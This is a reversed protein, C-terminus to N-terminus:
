LNIMLLSMGLIKRYINLCDLFPNSLMAKVWEDEPVTFKRDHVIGRPPIDNKVSYEEVQKNFDALFKAFDQLAEGIQKLFEDPIASRSDRELRFAARIAESHEAMIKLTELFNRITIEANEALTLRLRAHIIKPKDHLLDISKFRPFHIVQISLQHCVKVADDPARHFPTPNSEEIRLRQDATVRGPGNCCNVEVEVMSPDETSLTTSVRVLSTGDSLYGMYDPSVDALEGSTVRGWVGRLSQAPDYTEVICWPKATDTRYGLVVIFDPISLKNRNPNKSTRKSTWTSTYRCVVHWNTWVQPEIWYYSAKPPAFLRDPSSEVQTCGYTEILHHTSLTPLLRFERLRNATEQFADEPKIIDKRIYVARKEATGLEHDLSLPIDLTTGSVRAFQDGDPTLQKLPIALAYRQNGKIYYCDLYAAWINSLNKNASMPVTIKLGKNTMSFTDSVDWRRFSLLDESFKFYRPHKALLGVEKPLGRYVSEEEPLEWAFLTHDDSDRMIEEQLRLFARERGEGYLLPMNVGFIGLLCYAIDEPRTTRRRSAWCMRKAISYKAIDKQSGGLASTQIGSIESIINSLEIRTGLRDWLEGYFIMKQPALLEQLTWGRSFWRSNLWTDRELRNPDGPIDALYAYCVKADRYWSFMSNIAESLEASSSKDICITDVWVWEIKDEMAQRCCYEIKKWSSRQAYGTSKLDEFLVEDSGWTHSLIAYEKVEKGIFEHLEYTKSHLLRM